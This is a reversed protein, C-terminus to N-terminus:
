RNEDPTLLEKVLGSKARQQRQAQLECEGLDVMRRIETTFLLRLLKDSGTIECLDKIYAAPFRAATKTTATYDNLMCVTIKRGIRCSLEEAVQRRNKACSALVESLAARFSLDPRESSSRIGASINM